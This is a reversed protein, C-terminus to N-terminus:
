GISIVEGPRDQWGLSIRISSARAGLSGVVRRATELPIEPTNNTRSLHALVLHRMDRHAIGALLEAAEDNSLHGLASRVRKKLFPPYPGSMLMAEDHNFELVCLDCGSLGGQVELTVCGLDTAFGAAVRGDSIVFGVTDQADHSLAFSSVSLEGVDFRRGTCFERTRDAVAGALGTEAAAGANLFVPVGKRRSLVPIGNTHDSHGHSVLVADLSEVDLGCSDM